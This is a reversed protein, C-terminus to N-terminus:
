KQNGYLYDMGMPIIRLLNKVADMVTTTDRVPETLINNAIAKTDSGTYCKDPLKKNTASITYNLTSVKKINENYLKLSDHYQLLIKDNINNIEIKEILKQWYKIYNDVYTTCYNEDYNNYCDTLSKKNIYKSQTTTLWVLGLRTCM